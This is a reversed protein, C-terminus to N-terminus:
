RKSGPGNGRKDNAQLIYNSNAMPILENATGSQPTYQVSLSFYVHWRNAHTQCGEANRNEELSRCTHLPRFNGNGGM